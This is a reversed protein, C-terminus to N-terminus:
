GNGSHNLAVVVSGKKHGREAYRHAEATQEFAYRRDIVAKLRGTEVLEKLLTMEEKGGSSVGSAVSVCRGNEALAKECRSPSTKGVADFILDYREGGEAFDEQTYDIIRRAGLSRVLELNTPGCVGTVDAGFHAALQVAATGVAGSAGYILAKEGSHLEGQTKLFYLATLAGYPIAAAEEDSLKAPTAAVAGDEPLCVYQAHTGLNMGTSGFVRDGMHFRKVNRGVAEIEGAFASGLIRRKPRLLGNFLRIGFPEAKRTRWDGSTVTTAHVRVLVEDDKPEPTDVEEIQLV